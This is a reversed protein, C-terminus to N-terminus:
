DVREYTTQVGADSPFFGSLLVLKNGTIQFFTKPASTDNDFILAHNFEGPKLELGVERSATSDPIIKYLGSQMLAGEEFRQYKGNAFQLRNGNGAPYTTRMSSVQERMEWSGQIEQKTDSSKVASNSSCGIFIIVMISLCIVTWKNKM